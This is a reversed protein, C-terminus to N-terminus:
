LGTRGAQHCSRLQELLQQGAVGRAPQAAGAQGTSFAAGAVGAICVVRHEMCGGSLLGGTMFAPTGSGGRCRWGSLIKGRRCGGQVLCSCLGHRRRLLQRTPRFPWLKCPLRPSWWGRQQRRRRLLLLLLLLPLLLPLLLLQLLSAPVDL